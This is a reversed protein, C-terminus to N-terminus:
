EIPEFMRDIVARIVPWDPVQSGRMWRRATRADVNGLDALAADPKDWLVKCVAGFRRRVNKDADTARHGNFDTSQALGPALVTRM